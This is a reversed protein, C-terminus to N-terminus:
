EAENNIYQAQKKNKITLCAYNYNCHCLAFGYFSIGTGITTLALYLFFKGWTLTDNELGGVTGLILVAFIVTVTAAIDRLIRYKRAKKQLKSM